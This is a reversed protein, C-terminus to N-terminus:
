LKGCKMCDHFDSSGTRPNYKGIPCATCSVSSNRLTSFKGAPCKLCQASDMAAYQDNYTGGMCSKCKINVWGENNYYGPSCRLCSTLGVNNTYFGRPCNLCPLSPHISYKGLACQSCTIRASAGTAHNTSCM